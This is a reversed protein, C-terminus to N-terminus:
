DVTNKNLFIVMKNSHRKKTHTYGLRAIKGYKIGQVQIVFLILWESQKSKWLMYMAVIVDLLVVKHVGFHM